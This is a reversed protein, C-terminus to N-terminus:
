TIKVKKDQNPRPSPHLVIEEVENPPDISGASGSRHVGSGQTDFFTGEM